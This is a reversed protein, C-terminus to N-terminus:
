LWADRKWPLRDELFVPRDDQFTIRESQERVQAQYLRLRLGRVILADEQMWSHVTVFAVAVFLACAPFFQLFTNLDTM